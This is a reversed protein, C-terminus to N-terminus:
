SEQRSCRNSSFRMGPRWRLGTTDTCYFPTTVKTIRLVKDLLTGERDVTPAPFILRLNHSTLPNSAGGWGECRPSPLPSLAEVCRPAPLPSRAEVGWEGGGVGPLLRPPLLGGM